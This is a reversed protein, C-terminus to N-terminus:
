LEPESLSLTVLVSIDFRRSVGDLIRYFSDSYTLPPITRYVVAIQLTPPLYYFFESVKKGM